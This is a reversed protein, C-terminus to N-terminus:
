NFLYFHIETKVRLMMSHYELKAKLNLGQCFRKRQQINRIQWFNIGNWGGIQIDELSNWTLRNSIPLHTKLRYAKGSVGIRMKITERLGHNFMVQFKLCM